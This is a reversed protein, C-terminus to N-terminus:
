DGPHVSRGRGSDLLQQQLRMRYRKVQDIQQRTQEDIGLIEHLHAAIILLVMVLWCVAFVASETWGQGVDLRPVAYILLGLALGLCAANRLERM